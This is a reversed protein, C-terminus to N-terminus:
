TLVKSIASKIESARRALIDVVEGLEESTPVRKCAIFISFYSAGFIYGFVIGFAADEENSIHPKLARMGRLYGVLTEPELTNDIAKEVIGRLLPEM